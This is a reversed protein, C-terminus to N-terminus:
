PANPATMVASPAAPSGADAARPNPGELGPLECFNPKRYVRTFRGETPPELVYGKGDVPQVDGSDEIRYIAICSRANKGSGQKVEVFIEERGDGDADHTDSWPAPLLRYRIEEQFVNPKVRDLALAIGRATVVRVGISSRDAHRVGVAYFRQGRLLPQASLGQRELDEVLARAESRPDVGLTFYREDEFYPGRPQPSSACAGVICACSVAIIRAVTM